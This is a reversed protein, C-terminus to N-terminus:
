RHALGPSGATNHANITNNAIICKETGNGFLSCAIGDGAVNTVYAKWGVATPLPKRTFRYVLFAIAGGLLILLVILAVVLKRM